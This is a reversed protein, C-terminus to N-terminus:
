TANGRAGAVATAAGPSGIPRLVVSGRDFHFEVRFFRLVDNGIIGGQEFGAAENVPDLDLVIARVFERTQPVGHLALKDLVM